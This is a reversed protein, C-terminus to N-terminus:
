AARELQEPAFDSAHVDDKTFCMMQGAPVMLWDGTTTELPESVVMFGQGDSCWRYYLSPAHRDSAYRVAYLREGDSLAASLRMHPTTGHTQSLIQLDQAARALAGMPDADLGHGLAHLFLAESDTAGRRNEYLADAIKHDAQKRFRDFGGVQGNHM